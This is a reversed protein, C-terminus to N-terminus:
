GPSRAGGCRVGGLPGPRWWAEDPAGVDASPEFGRSREVWVHLKGQTAPKNLGGGGDGCAGRTFTELVGRTAQATTNMPLLLPPPPPVLMMETILCVASHYIFDFSRPSFVIGVVLLYLLSNSVKSFFLKNKALSRNSAAAAAFRRAFRPAQRHPRPPASHHENALPPVLMRDTIQCVSSQSSCHQLSISSRLLLRTCYLNLFYKFFHNQFIIDVAFRPAQCHPGPLPGRVPWPYSNGRACGAAAICLPPSSRASIGFPVPPFFHRHPFACRLHFWRNRTKNPSVSVRCIYGDKWTQSGM